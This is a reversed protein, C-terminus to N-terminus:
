LFPESQLLIQRFPGSLTLIDFERRSFRAMLRDAERWALDYDSPTIEESRLAEDLDDADLLEIQWTPTIVIDLFLDDSWPIGAESVGTQLCIDIYWQVVQGSANYMTLVTYREGESFVAAM